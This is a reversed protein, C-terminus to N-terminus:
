YNTILVEDSNLRKTNHSSNKYSYNLHHVNYKSSWSILMSNKLGKHYLVNSLAFRIKNANLNDLLDYLEKEQKYTWNVFGRNGDNYSGTTILYPPDAYVFDNTSLKNFDVDSFYNDTFECNIEHLKDMFKVLNIEMSESFHSRNKGFSNNFEMKNNFRFQYNFSYSALTYLAIPNPSENYDKRFRKFGEENTESLNYKKIYEKIESLVKEIDSDQLKRFFDNIKSNIDNFIIKNATVNIGVNAGGSFLDVFTSINKPFYPIIQPLLKYKGGVYNTPSKIFGNNFSVVHTNVRDKTKSNEPNFLSEQYFNKNKPQYYYLIENVEKENYIKSKYKRYQFKNKEITGAKAVKSILGDLKKESIIGDTSYSVIVHKSSVKSLLNTMAYEARKKVAFESKEDDLNPQGTIGKLKPKEWKAIMELVHYNSPYQRTNYPTDIYVIDANNIATILKTSDSNFQINNKSVNNLLPTELYLPKFARKDWKKLFAGYTGTTNSILPVAYILAALLYFYEDQTLLNENKWKEISNRCFDIKKANYETFYKRKAYGVPSYERTVFDGQYDSIDVSNLYKLPDNIGINKLSLFRLENKIGLTGRALVYSFYMIDNSIVRYKSSFYNGVSNSGAFLDVFNKESSDTHKKLLNDIKNVVNQKNGIFRM